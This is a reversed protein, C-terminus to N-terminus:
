RRRRSADLVSRSRSSSARTAIATTRITVSASWLAITTSPADAAIAGDGRRSAASRLRPRKPPSRSERHKEGADSRSGSSSRTPAIGADSRSGSSRRTPAARDCVQPVRPGRVHANSRSGSSRRTPAARHRPALQPVRDVFTPTVVRPAMAVSRARAHRRRDLPAHAPAMVSRARPHRRRDLPAHAGDRREHTGVVISRDVLPGRARALVHAMSGIEQASSL